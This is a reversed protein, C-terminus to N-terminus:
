KAELATIRAELAQITTLAEQLAATLLPVLKSQDISQYEPKGEADVADKEGTVAEPVVSQAEHAIFGDVRSGDVKWAFNIPKLAMLRDTVGTMPQMDEKLRYDSSTSYATASGNTSISGVAAGGQHFVIHLGNTDRISSLTLGADTGGTTKIAAANGASQIAFINGGFGGSPISTTGVLLNGSSNIRMREAGNTEVTVTDDAPFRISTNTDGAHIIKDPITVDGTATITTGTIAGASAGGITVGDITGGNIDTTTLVSSAVTVVGTSDAITAAATGDKAKINTVEVNTTDITTANVTTGTFAVTSTLGTTTLLLRQVGATSVGIQNANPRSFGTDQDLTFTIGPSAASGDDFKGEGAEDAVSQFDTILESVQSALTAVLSQTPVIKYAQGTQTSGLYSDALTLSTASVIAQIEYLRGDPGYFAEGIQAGAIFNTGSGTVATSGNTVSVTGTDYWAM